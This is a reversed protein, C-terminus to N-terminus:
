DAWPYDRYKPEDPDSVFLRAVIGADEDVWLGRVEASHLARFDEDYEWGGAIRLLEDWPMGPRIGQDTAADCGPSLTIMGVTRGDDLMLGCGPYYLFLYREGETGERIPPGLRRLVKRLPMGRRVPPRSLFHGDPTVVFQVAGDVLTVVFGDYQLWTGPDSGPRVRLPPGAAAEVEARSARIRFPGVSVGPVIRWAAM